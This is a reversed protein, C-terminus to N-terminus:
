KSQLAVACAAKILRDRPNAGMDAFALSRADSDKFDLVRMQGRWLPAEFLSLTRHWAKLGACDVVASSYYSRYPQGDFGTRTQARNVRLRVLRMSEFAVASTADVEVTDVLPNGPEGVVTFWNARAATAAAAAVAASVFAIALVVSKM